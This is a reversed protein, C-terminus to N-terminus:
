RWNMTWGDMGGGDREGVEVEGGMWGDVEGVGMEGGYVKKGEIWGGWHLVTTELGSM